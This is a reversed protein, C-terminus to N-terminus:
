ARKRRALAFLGIFGSGFLWVAAPIPVVNFENGHNSNWIFIGDAGNPNLSAAISILASEYNAATGSGDVWAPLMASTLDTQSTRVGDGYYALINAEAYGYKNVLIDHIKSMDTFYDPRGAPTSGATSGVFLLAFMGGALTANDVANNASYYQPSTPTAAPGTAAVDNLVAYNFASLFSDNAPSPNDVAAAWPNLFTNGPNPQGVPNSESCEGYYAATAIGVNGQLSQVENVFGGSHCQGFTTLLQGFKPTSLQAPPNYLYANIWGAWTTDVINDGTVTTLTSHHDVPEAGQNNTDISTAHASFALGALLIGTLVVSQNTKIM